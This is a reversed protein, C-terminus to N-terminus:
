FRTELWSPVHQPHKNLIVGLLNANADILRQKARAAVHGRTREAEMVLLVGNLLGAAVFCLSSEVAPLDVVVFGFDNELGELLDHIRGADLAGGPPEAASAVSLVSLNAVSTPRVRQNSWPDAPSDSLHDDGSRGLEGRPVGQSGTLDLLLVPEESIQAAAIAVNAAVTSVGSGRTCSTVGLLRPAVGSAIGVTRLWHVLSYYEDSVRAPRDALAANSRAATSTLTIM